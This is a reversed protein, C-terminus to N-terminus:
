AAELLAAMQEAPTDCGLSKRPRDNLEHAVMSLEEPTHGALDTGRPFYQQLLGNTNRQQRM